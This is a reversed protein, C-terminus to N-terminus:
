TALSLTPNKCLLAVNPCGEISEELPLLSPSQGPVEMGSVGPTHTCETLVHCKVRCWCPCPIFDLSWIFDLSRVCSLVAGAQRRPSERESAGGLAWWVREMRKTQSARGGGEEQKPVLSFCYWRVVRDLSLGWHAFSYCFGEGKRM